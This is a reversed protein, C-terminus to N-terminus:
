ISNQETRPTLVRQAAVVPELSFTDLFRHTVDRPYFSTLITQESCVGAGM